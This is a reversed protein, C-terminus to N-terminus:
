NIFDHLRPISRDIEIPNPSLGAYWRASSWYWDDPREVLGRRVPNDHIYHIMHHITRVELANRDFGGGPQWFRRRTRNGECVTIRSLWVPAHQSLYKVAHRGVKEKIEGVIRGLKMGPACPFVLLHIHEPMIVFAWLDFPYKARADALADIFWQCTRDRSLFQYGRYCCFTFEHANGTVDYRRLRKQAFQKGTIPDHMRM